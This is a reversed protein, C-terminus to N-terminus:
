GMPPNLDPGNGSKVTDSARSAAGELTTHFSDMLVIVLPMPSLALRRPKRMLPSPPSACSRSRRSCCPDPGGEGARQEM